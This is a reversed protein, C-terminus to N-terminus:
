PETTAGSQPSEDRRVRLVQRAAVEGVEQWVGDPWRVRVSASQADGLGVHLRRDDQSLYGTGARVERWQTRGAATVEVRAGIADRNRERGELEVMLWAGEAGDNRLLTPPADLNVVLLDLDGDGDIDGVAHGRSSQRVALGPGATATVERLHGGDNLFLQNPQRYATGIGADDVGPYVHGNAVFLDLDADHDVDLMAVGWGLTALTRRGVDHAYSADEWAAHASLYLSVHDHSFNTVALDVGGDGDLDGAAIGMGAQRRGDASVAVGTAAAVDVFVAGTDDNRYLLNPTSDNAVYIDADGDDDLDGAHVGLGYYAPRPQLRDSADSWGADDALRLLDSQGPLGVPGCFVSLGRWTCPAAEPRRLTAPLAVYRALYVDVDGDRDIDAAGVGTSWGDDGPHRGPATVREFTGDGRNRFFGDEGAATVFLDPWGDGDADWAACGMGFGRFGAGSADTVDVFRGGDNRYLRSLPAEGVFRGGNVLYADLDGDGDYDFLAAGGTNAELIHHKSHVRGAVVSDRLGAEAAVDVFRVPVGGETGGGCATLLGLWGAACAALVIRVLISGATGSPAGRPVGGRSM